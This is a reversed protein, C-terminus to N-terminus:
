GCSVAGQGAKEVACRTGPWRCWCRQRRGTRRVSPMWCRARPRISACNWGPEGHGVRCPKSPACPWVSAISARWHTWICGKTPARCAHQRSAGNRRNPSHKRCCGPIAYTQNVDLEHGAAKLAAVLLPQSFAELAQIEGFSKELEVQSQGRADFLAKLQDKQLQSAADYWAPIQVPTQKLAQRREPSSSVMWPPIAQKILEYHQGQAGPLPLLTTNTM